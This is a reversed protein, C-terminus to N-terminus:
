SQDGTAQSLREKLRSRAATRAQPRWYLFCWAGGFIAPALGWFVAFLALVMTGAAQDDPRGAAWAFGWALVAVGALHLLIFGVATALLWAVRSVLGIGVAALVLVAMLIAGYHMAYGRVSASEALYPHDYVLHSGLARLSIESPLFHGAASVLLENYPGAVNVWLVSLVLLMVVARISFTLLDSLSLM